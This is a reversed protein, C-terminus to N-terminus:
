LLNRVSPLYDAGALCNCFLSTGGDVHLWAGHDDCLTRLRSMEENSYTAFRGTNIEGCSVVVISAAGRGKLFGGLMDMDFALGDDEKGVDIVSGRGLGVVSAAKFLSSHGRTTLVQFREVGARACAELIGLEGISVGKFRESLVYERGCAMGLVNSGTAVTTFTRGPWQGPELDLLEMLWKLARDEVVSSVSEEPVHLAVNQDYLSVLEDAVRAAPTVGGTVLGYYNPSLSSASLAPAISSLLHEVTRPLTHGDEPLHAPLSSIANSLASPSPLIPLSSPSCSLLSNAHTHVQGICKLLQEQDM